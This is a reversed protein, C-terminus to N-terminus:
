WTQYDIYYNLMPFPFFCIKPDINQNDNIVLCQTIYYELYIFIYTLCLIYPM